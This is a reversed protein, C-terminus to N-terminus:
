WDTHFVGDEDVREYTHSGFYDRQAQILNDPLRESRYADFYELSVMLSPVPIGAKLAHTLIFRTDNEYRNLDPQLSDALLLNNLKPNESFIQMLDELLGARIICGGRWIKAVDALNLGFDKEDSAVRLMEMGQAFTVVMGFYIANELKPIFNDKDEKIISAPGPFRDSADKRDQKYASLHRMSVAMDITPVPVQLDMALQSTWKGTGKQKATDKIHDILYGPKEEDKRTFIHATIEVLFSSLKGDNWNAFMAHLEENNMKLGRKCLDYVEALMEMIGYEIGNHVMKVFHGASSKGLYTVCPEGKVKAAAAEFIDQVLKWAEPDGGPMMSPGHRAGDSGGSIGVGLYKLKKESARAIRKETDSPHSNGGDIILDGEELVPILDDLVGEVAGAPVLLMVKRPKQLNDLFEDLSNVGKVNLKGSDKELIKVKEKDLDYGIASFGKEAMNLIFNRGMVGLGILGIDYKEM